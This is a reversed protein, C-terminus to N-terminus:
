SLQLEDHRTQRLAFWHVVVTMACVVIATTVIDGFSHYGQYIMLVGYAGLVALGPAILMRRWVGLSTLLVVAFGTHGSFRLGLMSWASMSSHEVGRILYMVVMAVLVCVYYRARSRGLGGRLVLPVILAVILLAPSVADAIPQWQQHTLM